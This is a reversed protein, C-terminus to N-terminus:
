WAISTGVLLFADFNATKHGGLERTGSEDRHCAPMGM